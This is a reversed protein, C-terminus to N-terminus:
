DVALSTPAVPPNGVIVEVGPTWASMLDVGNPFEATVLDPRAEIARAGLEFAGVPLAPRLAELDWTVTGADRTVGADGEAAFVEWTAGGVPRTGAELTINEAVVPTNNVRETPARASLRKPNIKAM